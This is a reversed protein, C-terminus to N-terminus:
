LFNQCLLITSKHGNICKLQIGPLFEFKFERWKWFDSYIVNCSAPIEYNPTKPHASDSNSRIKSSQYVRIGRILGGIASKPGELGNEVSIESWIPNEAVRFVIRFETKANM